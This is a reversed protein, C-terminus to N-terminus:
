MREPLSIGLLDMSTELAKAVAQSLGVRFAKAAENEASLVSHDHWFRHYGKALNYAYSAVQSPDLEAAAQEVVEPLTLLHKVLDREAPALENYKKGEAADFGENEARASVGFARVYSYQIYPGTTGQMEVSEKPNFIMRKKPGVKLIFYKIAALGVQEASEARTAEDSETIEAREEANQLAESVTVEMLDDADVVTGQRTKMQGTTLDIMGYGLHYLQDAYPEGLKELAAFLAQFHYNQEDGTIYIMRDMRFDEFRQHATGLDQTIYVSTGDARLIIKHDLKADTLDAWVSGDEKKYFAGNSLGKEAMEKGLLYTNSEYYLKDFTVGLREYTADHGAYVWTNMTSWLARVDKDGAEWALLMTKAEKGLPSISNFYTNKYKKAPNEGEKVEIQDLATKGVDTAQWAEYEEVFAKEFRVYFDGVIIDGKRGNTEPTEGNAFKQWAVMSKCIAIGRDNIIQVRVVDHGAADLIKSISWGLLINRVHGLHLPKNTNPSSFEIATKIGKRPAYGFQSAEQMADLQKRWFSGALSINLFGKIVEISSVDEAGKELAEGIKTAIEDPRDGLLKALAFTVVTFDGEMDSRTVNIVIKDADIEKGYAQAIASQTLAQLQQVIKMAAAFTTVPVQSTVGPFLCPVTV